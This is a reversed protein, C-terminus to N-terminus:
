STSWVGLCRSSVRGRTNEGFGWCDVVYGWEFSIRSWKPLTWGCMCKRADGEGRRNAYNLLGELILRENLSIMQATTDYRTAAGVDFFLLVQLKTPRKRGSDMSGGLCNEMGTLYVPAIECFGPVASYSVPRWREVQSQSYQLYAVPSPCWRALKHDYWSNFTPASPDMKRIRKPPSPQTDTTVDYAFVPVFIVPTTARIAM